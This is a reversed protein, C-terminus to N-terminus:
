SMKFDLFKTLVKDMRGTIINKLHTKIYSRLLAYFLGEGYRVMM